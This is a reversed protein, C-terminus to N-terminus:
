FCWFASRKYDNIQSFYISNKMQEVTFRKLSCSDTGLKKAKEFSESALEEKNIIKLIGSYRVLNLYNNENEIKSKLSLNNDRLDSLGSNQTFIIIKSNIFVLKWKNEKQIGSLFQQAWPTQDTHSFVITNIKYKNFISDQLDQNEQMPIYIKQVFNSPYAEPRNDIFLRYKPYLRYILYGGIDFNNYINGKLNHNLIFDTAEKESEGYGFGFRKDSDFTKSYSNDFFFFSSFGIILCLLLMATNQYSEFYIKKFIRKIYLFFSYIMWATFPIATLIFFPFHRIQFISISFMCLLLLGELTKKRFFLFLITVIVFPSIIFFYTILHNSIRQSLFFVNQNEVIPYGYNGFIKLPYLAGTIGNPNLLVLFFSFIFVYLKNLSEKNKILEFYIKVTIFFGLMIGFVFSIHLNVWFVLLLPIILLFRNVRKVSIFVYLFVAYFVYGFLEPRIDNRDLFLPFFICASIIATLINSKKEATKIVFFFAMLVLIIKLILLSVPNIKEYLFYFVVESFWHHNIFQFQSHTYSFLNVSPVRGTKVIIEGLKIHRGLDQSFDTSTTATAAFLLIFFSIILLFNLIRKM